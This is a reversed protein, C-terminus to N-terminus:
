LGPRRFLSDTMSLATMSMAKARSELDVNNFTKDKFDSTLGTKGADESYNHHPKVVKM